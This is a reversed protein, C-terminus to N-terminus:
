VAPQKDRIQVEGRNGKNQQVDPSCGYDKQESDADHSYFAEKCDDEFTGHQIYAQLWEKPEFFLYEKAIWFM